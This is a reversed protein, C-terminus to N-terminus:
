TNDDDYFDNEILFKELPPTTNVCAFLASTVGQKFVYDNDCCVQCPGPSTFVYSLVTEDIRKLRADGACGGGDAFLMHTFHQVSERTVPMQTGPWKASVQGCTPFQAAKEKSDPICESCEWQTGAPCDTTANFCDHCLGDHFFAGKPCADRKLLPECGSHDANNTFGVQCRQCEPMGLTRIQHLGCPTCAHGGHKREAGQPCEVCGTEGPPRHHSLPCQTCATAGAAATFESAKCPECKNQVQRTNIRCARCKDRHPLFEVFIEGDECEDRRDDIINREVRVCQKLDEHYVQDKDCDSCRGTIDSIYQTSTCRECQLDQFRDCRSQVGEGPPCKASCAKCEPASEDAKSLYQGMGCGQSPDSNCFNIGGLQECLLVDSVAQHLNAQCTQVCSVSRPDVRLDDPVVVIVNESAEEPKRFSRETFMCGAAAKCACLKRHPSTLLRFYEPSCPESCRVDSMYINKITGMGHNKEEGKQFLPDTYGVPCACTVDGGDGGKGDTPSLCAPLMSAERSFLHDFGLEQLATECSPDQLNALHASTAKFNGCSAGWVTVREACILALLLLRHM